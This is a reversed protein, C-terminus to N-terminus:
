KKDGEWEIVRGCWPCFNVLGAWRGEIAKGCDCWGWLEEGGGWSEIQERTARKCHATGKSHQGYEKKGNRMGDEYGDSYARDYLEKAMRNYHEINKM